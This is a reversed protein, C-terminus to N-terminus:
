VEVGIPVPEFTIAILTTDDELDNGNHSGSIRDIIDAVIKDTKGSKQLVQKVVEKFHSDERVQGQEDRTEVLGDSYLIM